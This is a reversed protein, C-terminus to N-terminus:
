VQMRQIEAQLQQKKVAHEKESQSLEATLKQVNEDYMRIEKQLSTGEHTLEDHLQKGDNIKKNMENMSRMHKIRMDDLDKQVDDRQDQLDM